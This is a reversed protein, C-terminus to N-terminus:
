KNIPEYSGEGEPRRRVLVYFGVIVCIVVVISGLVIVPIAWNPWTKPLKCIAGPPLLGPTNPWTPTGINSTTNLSFGFKRNQCCVFSDHAAGCKRAYCNNGYALEAFPNFSQGFPSMSFPLLGPTYPCSAKAICSMLTDLLPVCESGGYATQCTNTSNVNFCNCAEGFPCVGLNPTLVTNCSSPATMNYSQCLLQGTTANAVCTLNYKCSLDVGPTYCTSGVNGSFLKRCSSSMDNPLCASGAKCFLTPHLKHGTWRAAEASCDM